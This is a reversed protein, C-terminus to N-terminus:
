QCCQCGWQVQVSRSTLWRTRKKSVCNPNPGSDDKSKWCKVWSLLKWYSSLAMGGLEPVKFVCAMGGAAWSSKLVCAMGGLWFKSYVRQADGTSLFKSYMVFGYRGAAFEMKRAGTFSVDRRKEMARRQTGYAQFSLAKCVCFCHVSCVVMKWYLQLTRVATSETSSEM